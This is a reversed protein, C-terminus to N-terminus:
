TGIQQAHACSRELVEVIHNFERCKEEYANKSAPTAHELAERLMLAEEFREDRTREELPVGEHSAFVEDVQITFLGLVADASFVQTKGDTTEIVVAGQKTAAERLRMLRRRDVM